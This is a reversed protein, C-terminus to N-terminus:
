AWARSNFSSFEPILPVSESQCPQSDTKNFKLAALGALVVATSFSSIFANTRFVEWGSAVGATNRVAKQLCLTVVSVRALQYCFCTLALQTWRKRAAGVSAICHYHPEASNWFSFWHLPWAFMKGWQFSQQSCTQHQLDKTLLQCILFENGGTEKQMTDATSCPINGSAAQCCCSRFLM